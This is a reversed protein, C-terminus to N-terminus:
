CVVRISSSEAKPVSITANTMKPLAITSSELCIFGAPVIAATLEAAYGKAVHWADYQVAVTGDPNPLVAFAQQFQLASARKNRTDVAM